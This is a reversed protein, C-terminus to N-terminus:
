PTPNSVRLCLNSGIMLRRGVWDNDVFGDMTDPILAIVLNPRFSAARFAFGPGRDDACAAARLRLPDVGSSGRRVGVSIENTTVTKRVAESPALGDVDPWYREIEAREPVIAVLRVVRDTLARLAADIDDQGVTIQRGSPLALRVAGTTDLTTAVCQLLTGWLRPHKTSASKNTQQDHLAYRRDGDVGRESVQAWALREGRM